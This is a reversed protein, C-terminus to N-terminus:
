STKIAAAPLKMPSPAGVGHRPQWFAALWWGPHSPPPPPLSYPRSGRACGLAIIVCAPGCPPRNDRRSSRCRVRPRLVAGPLRPFTIASRRLARCVLTGVRRSSDKGVPSRLTCRVFGSRTTRPGHHRSCPSLSAPRQLLDLGPFRVTAHGAIHPTTSMASSPSLAHRCSLKLPRLLSRSPCAYRRAL